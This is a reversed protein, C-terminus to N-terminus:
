PVVMVTFTLEQDAYKGTVEWCGLMPFDVGTLMASGIDAAYANTADSVNLLPAPGDLRRGTVTLAPQPEGTWSYGVRWWFVKYTRAPWNGNTPIQTWLRETGYWSWDSWPWSQPYAQPPTFPQALPLTVPCDNALTPTLMSAAEVPQEATSLTVAKVAMARRERGRVDGGSNSWILLLSALLLMGALYVYRLNWM